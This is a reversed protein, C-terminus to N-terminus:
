PLPPVEIVDSPHIKADALVKKAERTVATCYKQDQPSTKEEPHTKRREDRWQCTIYEDVLAAATEKRPASKDTQELNM